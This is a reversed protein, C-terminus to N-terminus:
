FWFSKAFIKPLWDLETIELGWPRENILGLIKKDVVWNGRSWRNCNWPQNFGGPSTTTEEDLNPQPVSVAAAAAKHSGRLQTWEMRRQRLHHVRLPVGRLPWRGGNGGRCGFDLRLQDEDNSIPLRHFLSLYVNSTQHLNPCFILYSGRSDRIFYWECCFVSFFAVKFFWGLLTQRYYLKVIFRPKGRIFM